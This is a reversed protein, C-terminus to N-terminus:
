LSAQSIVQEISLGLSQVKKRLNSRTIGLQKAARSQNGQHHQLAKRILYGEMETVMGSYLGSSEGSIREDIRQSINATELPRKLTQQPVRLNPWSLTLDDPLFDSEIITGFTMLMSKQIVNHLERVNGPWGYQKFRGFTESGFGDIDKNLQRNFLQLFHRSLLELDGDRDRLPPLFIQYGDLRHLLDLRFKKQRIMEELDRNTAALVRVDVDITETGGVRELKHEELVRLVKAQTTPSMDGIEDLLITGGQCQEFKGIHRRNAGTFAGKEHGFLESELLTESLAACNVALYHGGRRHSHQWIARAVLEKGTGNEGRILVAIDHAAVRGIQKYVEVMATSRGLLAKTDVVAPFESGLQRKSAKMLGRTAAAQQVLKQVADMSVPKQLVDYAGLKMAEIASESRDVSAVVIVPLCPDVRRVEGALQLGGISGSLTIGLLLVDPKDALVRNMSLEANTALSVEWDPGVFAFQISQLFKRDNDIVMLKIM